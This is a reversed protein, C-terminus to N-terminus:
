KVDLSNDSNAKKTVLYYIIIASITVLYAVLTYGDFLWVSGMKVETRLNLFNYKSLFAEVPLFYLFFVSIWIAYSIAIFRISYRINNRTLLMRHFLVLVLSNVPIIGVSFLVVSVLLANNDKYYIIFLVLCTEFLEIIYAKLFDRILKISYNIVESLM